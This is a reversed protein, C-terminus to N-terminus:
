KIKHKLQKSKNGTKLSKRMVYISKTIFWRQLIIDTVRPKNPPPPPPSPDLETTFQDASTIVESFAVLTIKKKLISYVGNTKLLQLRGKHM